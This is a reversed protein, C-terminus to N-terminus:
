LKVQGAIYGLLAGIGFAIAVLHPKVRNLLSTEEAKVEEETSM